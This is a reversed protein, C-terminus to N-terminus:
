AFPVGRRGLIKRAVPSLMRKATKELGFFRKPSTRTVMEFNKKLGVAPCYQDQVCPAPDLQYVNLTPALASRPHFLFWDVPELIERPSAALWEAVKRSVVYGAAGWAESYVRFIGTDGVRAVPTPGLKMSQLTTELRVIDMSRDIWGSDRMLPAIRDSLHVDDEFIAAHTDTTSAIKTWADRHSLFIAIQPLTWPHPHHGRVMSPNFESVDATTMQGADVAPVRQFTIGLRKLQRDMHAMRVPARDLNIVYARMPSNSKIPRFDQHHFRDRPM